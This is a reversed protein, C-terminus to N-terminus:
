NVSEKKIHWRTVLRFTLFLDMCNENALMYAVSKKKINLNPRTMCVLDEYSGVSTV